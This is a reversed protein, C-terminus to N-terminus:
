IGLHAPSTPQIQPAPSCNSEPYPNKNQHPLQRATFFRAALSARHDYQLPYGELPSKNQHSLQGPVSLEPSPMSQCTPHLCRKPLLNKNRHPLQELAFSAPSLHLGPSCSSPQESLHGQSPEGEAEGLRHHSSGCATYLGDTLQTGAGPGSHSDPPNQM